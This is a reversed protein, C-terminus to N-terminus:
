RQAPVFANLELTVTTAYEDDEKEDDDDGHQWNPYKFPLASIQDPMEGEGSHLRQCLHWVRGLQARSLTKNRSKLILWFCTLFHIVPAGPKYENAYFNHLSDILPLM